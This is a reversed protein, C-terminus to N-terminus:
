QDGGSVRALGCRMCVGDGHSTMAGWAHGYIRCTQNAEACGGHAARYAAVVQSPVPGYESLHGNDRAWQRVGSLGCGGAWQAEHVNTADPAEAASVGSWTDALDAAQVILAVLERAQAPSLTEAPVADVEIAVRDLTGDRRQRAQTTVLPCRLADSSVVVTGVCLYVDRFGDAWIGPEAGAPVAPSDLDIINTHNTASNERM